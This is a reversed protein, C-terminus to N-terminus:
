WVCGPAAGCDGAAHSPGRGHRFPLARGEGLTAQRDHREVVPEACEAEKVVGLGASVEGDLVPDRRQGPHGVVDTGETAVGAVDGNEALGSARGRQAGQEAGGGRVAQEV